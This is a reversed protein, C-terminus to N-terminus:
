IEVLKKVTALAMLLCLPQEPLAVFGHHTYFRAATEDKADVIFAYAAIEATVARRLADALLAAGLGDGKFAQDV